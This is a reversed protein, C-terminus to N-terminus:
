KKKKKSYIMINKAFGCLVRMCPEMVIPIMKKNRNTAYTFEGKCNDHGESAVKEMYVKTVFVLIIVSEDIGKAMMNDIHGVMKDEDFWTKFGQAKLLKNVIGVRGHNDRNLEDKVWTHTLFVSQNSIKLNSIEKKEENEIKSNLQSQTSISVKITMGEELDEMEDLIFLKGNKKFHLRIEVNEQLKIKSKIASNLDFLTQATTRLIFM